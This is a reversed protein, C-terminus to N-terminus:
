DGEPVRVVSRAPLVHPLAFASVPENLVFLVPLTLGCASFFVLLPYKCVQKKELIRKLEILIPVINEMTNKKTIKSLFKGRVAAVSKASAAAAM